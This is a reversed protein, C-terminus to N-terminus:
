NDNKKPRNEEREVVFFGGFKSFGRNKYQKLLGLFLSNEFFYSLVSFISFVLKQM